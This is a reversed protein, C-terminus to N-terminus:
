DERTLSRLTDDVCSSNIINYRQLFRTTPKFTVSSGAPTEKNCENFLTNGDAKKLTSYLDAVQIPGALQISLKILRIAPVQLGSINVAPAVSLLILVM